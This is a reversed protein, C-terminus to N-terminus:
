NLFGTVELCFYKAKLKLMCLQNVPHIFVAWYSSNTLSSVNMFHINIM